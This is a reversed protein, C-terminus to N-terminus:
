CSFPTKKKEHQIVVYLVWDDASELYSNLGITRKKFCMELIIMGRGGEPTPVYMRNVDVKLHHMRNLTFLKQIKTGMQRTDESICNIINFSYTAVPIALTNAADIKNQAKLETQLLPKVREYCVKRTKEKMKVHQIGGGKDIGM